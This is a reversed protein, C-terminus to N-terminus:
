ILEVTDVLSISGDGWTFWIQAQMRDGDITAFEDKAALDMFASFENLNM